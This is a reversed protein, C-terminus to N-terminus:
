VIESRIREVKRQLASIHILLAQKVFYLCFNAMSRWTYTLYYNLLGEVYLLLGDILCLLGKHKCIYAHVYTYQVHYPEGGPGILQWALFPLM